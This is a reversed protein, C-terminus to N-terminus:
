TAANVDQLLLVSEEGKHMPLRTVERAGMKRYFRLAPELRAGVIIKFQGIGANAFTTRIERYLDQALGTGRCDAAVAMSLLEAKTIEAAANKQKKRFPYCLSELVKRLSVSFLLRPGIMCVSRLAHRLVFRKYLDDVNATIAGFGVVRDQDKAVLLWCTPSSAISKYLLTLFGVGLRSLFGHELASVHLRAVGRFDRTELDNERLLALEPPMSEMLKGIDSSPKAM